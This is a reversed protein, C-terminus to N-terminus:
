MRDIEFLIWRIEDDWEHTLNFAFVVITTMKQWARKGRFQSDFKM